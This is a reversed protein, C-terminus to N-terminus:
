LVDIGMVLLVCATLGFVARVFSAHAFYDQRERDMGATTKLGIGQMYIRRCEDQGEGLRKDDPSEWGWEIPYGVVSVIESEKRLRAFFLYVATGRM